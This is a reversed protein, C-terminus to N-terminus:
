PVVGPLEYTSGASAAGPPTTGVPRPRPRTDPQGHRVTPGRHGVPKAQHCRGTAIRTGPLDITSSPERHRGKTAPTYALWTPARLRELLPPSPPEGRFLPSGGRLRSPPERHNRHHNRGTNAPIRLPPERSTGPPPDLHNGFHNGDSAPRTPPAPRGPRRSPAQRERCRHPSGTRHPHQRRPARRARRAPRGGRRHRRPVGASGARLPAPRPAPRLHGERAGM